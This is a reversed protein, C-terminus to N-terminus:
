FKIFTRVDHWDDSGDDDCNHLCLYGNPEKDDLLAVVEKREESHPCIIVTFDGDTLEGKEHASQLIPNNFRFPQAKLMRAEAQSTAEAQLKKLHTNEM